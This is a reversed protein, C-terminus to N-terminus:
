EDVNYRFLYQVGTVPVGEGDEIRPNYKFRSVARVSANNFVDPPDADVVVADIVTGTETVTFMVLCWGEIGRSLARNPYQPPVTVIPLMESDNIGVVATADIGGIDITVRAANITEGSNMNMRDIEIDPLDPVVESVEPEDPKPEVRAVEIEIEPISIDAIRISVGLEREGSGTAILAQMLYFLSFTIAAGFLVAVLGNVTRIM